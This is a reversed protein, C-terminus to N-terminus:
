ESKSREQNDEGSMITFEHIIDIYEEYKTIDAGCEPCVYKGDKNYEEIKDYYGCRDCELVNWGCDALIYNYKLIKGDFCATIHGNSYTGSASIEFDFPEDPMSKALAPLVEQMIDDIFHPDYGGAIEDIYIENLDCLESDDWMEDSVADSM